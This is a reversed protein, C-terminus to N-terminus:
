FPRVGDVELEGPDSGASGRGSARRRPDRGAGGEEGSRRASSSSRMSLLRRAKATGRCPSRGLGATPRVRRLEGQGIFEEPRRGAFAPTSVSVKDYIYNSTDVGGGIAEYGKPCSVQASTAEASGEGLKFSKVETITGRLYRADSETESYSSTSRLM